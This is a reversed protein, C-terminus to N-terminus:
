TINVVVLNSLLPDRNAGVEVLLKSTATTAAKHSAFQLIVDEMDKDKSIFFGYLGVKSKLIEAITPLDETYLPGSLRVCTTSATKLSRVRVHAIQFQKLIDCAKQDSLGNNNDVSEEHSRAIMKLVRQPAGIDAFELRMLCNNRPRSLKFNTIDMSQLADIVAKSPLHHPVDVLTIETCLSANQTINQKHHLGHHESTVNSDRLNKPMNSPSDASSYAAIIGSGKLIASGTNHLRNTVKDCAVVEQVSLTALLQEVHDLANANRSRAISEIIISAGKAASDGNAFHVIVDTDNDKAITFNYLGVKSTLMAVITECNESCLPGTLCICSAHRSKEGSTTKVRLNGLKIGM